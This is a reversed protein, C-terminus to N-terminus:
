GGVTETVDDVKKGRIDHSVRVTLKAAKRLLVKPVSLFVKLLTVKRYLKLSVDPNVEFYKM